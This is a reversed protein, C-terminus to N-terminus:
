DGLRTESSTPPTTPIVDRFAYLAACAAAFLALPASSSRPLAAFVSGLLGVKVLADFNMDNVRRLISAALNPDDIKRLGNGDVDWLGSQAINCLGAARVSRFL